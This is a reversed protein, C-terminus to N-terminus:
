RSHTIKGPNRNTLDVSLNNNFIVTIEYLYKQDTSFDAFDMLPLESLISEFLVVPTAYVTLLIQLM